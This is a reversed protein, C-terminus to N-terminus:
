ESQNLRRELEHIRDKLRANEELLNEEPPQHIAEIEAHQIIEDNTLYVGSLMSTKAHAQHINGMEDRYKLAYIRDSKDGFWGPGFPDWNKEILQWNHEAIYQEIRDGDLGGAFLRIGIAFLIAIVIFVVPEM